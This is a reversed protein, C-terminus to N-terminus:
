RYYGQLTELILGQYLNSGLIIIFVIYVFAWCLAAVGLSLRWSERGYLRMFLLVFAAIAIHFGFFMILAFLALIWGVAMLERRRIEQPSLEEKKPKETKTAEKVAATKRMTSEGRFADRLDLLFQIASMILAPIGVVLPVLRALPNYGMGIIVLLAFLLTFGLSFFLRGHVKFRM